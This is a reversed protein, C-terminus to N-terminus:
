PLRRYIHISTDTRCPNLPPTPMNEIFKESEVYETIWGSYSREAILIYDAESAWIRALAENWLGLKVLEDPKGGARYSYVNNLQAPYFEVEPLYLLISLALGGRWYVKSGPSIKEALYAGNQEYAAIMDQDCDYFDRGGGLFATPSLIWGLILFPFLVFGGLTLRINNGFMQSNELKTLVRMIIWTGAVAVLAAFVMYFVLQGQDRAEVYDWGMKNSLLGLGTVTGGQIQGGKFRPISISFFADTLGDMWGYRPVTEHTSYGIGLAVIIVVLWMWFKRKPLRAGSYWGTFTIVLLLFGSYSFFSLYSSFCFVCYDKALAAWAHFFFMVVFFVLLFFIAKYGKIKKFDRRAASCMFIAVVVAIISIFHYRVGEFFSIVRMKFLITPNWITEVGTVRWNNLFPTLSAPLWKAWLSLIGPWFLAHGVGFTLLGAVLAWNGKKRGHEWFIYILLLPLLPMMNLRTLPLLGALTSGLIIQWLPRGEGLTLVLVWILMCVVLVQSTMVSYIKIVAPNLAVVWIAAVAWWRGGFRRVVIWLGLLFLLGLGISLYRGTRLGEGFWVQFYGPILFSLPMHNTWPGYDQFPYYEGAAFLYGKLLYLGEDMVSDQTHAYIWLQLLYVGGGM